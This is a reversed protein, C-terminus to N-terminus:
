ADHSTGFGLAEELGSMGGRRGVSAKAAEIRILSALIEAEREQQTTYSTRALLREVLQGDLDPLLARVPDAGGATVTHHDFLMHGIEHLVIHEQHPRSTGVESFIHDGAPTALWLGCAGAAVAQTPLPHTYLPRGREEALSRCLAEVSFPHPLPLRKLVARCRRRLERDHHPM